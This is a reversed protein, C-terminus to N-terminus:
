DHDIRNFNNYNESRQQGVEYVARPPMSRHYSTGQVREPLEGRPLETSKYDEESKIFNDIRRMMETVTKLVQDFFRRALEPCKSNSMFASIQMVEPVDQIYSMEETWHEKFDPLTENARRIIKFVKTPDKFCKRRLAFREIFKERLDIWNDVYGNLIWNFWGRALGDLMQQFMGCWVPM